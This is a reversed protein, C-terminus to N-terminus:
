HTVQMAQRAKALPQIWDAVLARHLGHAQYGRWAQEDEFTAVLLYDPNGPRLRLDPTGRISLLGSIAGRMAEIAATVADVQEPTVADNWTVMLIHLIM